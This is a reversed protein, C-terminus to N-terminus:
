LIIKYKYEKPISNVLFRGDYSLSAFVWPDAMSWKARYVSEEHQEFVAVLGDVTKSINADHVM